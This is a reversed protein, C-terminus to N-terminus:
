TKFYCKAGMEEKREDNRVDSKDQIRGQVEVNFYKLSCKLIEPFM